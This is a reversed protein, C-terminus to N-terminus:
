RSAGETLAERVSGADANDILHHLADRLAADPTEALLIRAETRRRADSCAPCATGNFGRTCRSPDFHATM